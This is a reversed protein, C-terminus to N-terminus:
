LRKKTKVSSTGGKKVLSETTKGELRDARLTYEEYTREYTRAKEFYDAADEKYALAKERLNAAKSRHNDAKSLMKRRKAERKEAKAKLKASKAGEEVKAMERDMDVQDKLDEAKEELAEAKEKEKEAKAILKEAKAKLKTYRAINASIHKKADAALKRLLAIDKTEQIHLKKVHADEVTAPEDYESSDSELGSDAPPGEDLINEISVDDDIDNAEIKKLRSPDKKVVM